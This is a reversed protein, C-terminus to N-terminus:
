GVVAEGTSDVSEIADLDLTPKPKSPRGINVQMNTAVMQPANSKRREDKANKGFVEASKLEIMALISFAQAAKSIADMCISAREV